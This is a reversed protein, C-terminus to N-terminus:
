LPPSGGRVMGFLATFGARASPVAPLRSLLDTGFEPPTTEAVFCSGKKKYGGAMGGDGERGAKGEQVIDEEQGGDGPTLGHLPRCGPRIKCVVM